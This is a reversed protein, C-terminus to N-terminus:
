SEVAQVAGFVINGQCTGGVGTPVYIRWYTENFAENSVDNQRSDLNFESVIPSSTLNVYAEEFGSLDLTGPNSVTVNYKEYEISINGGLSCNMAFGDGVSAAYGSLSLNIEVNGYNTVNLMGEGSVYTANIVGYDLSDPLGLSLLTEITTENTEFDTYGSSDTVNASCNWSGSNAYYWVDFL